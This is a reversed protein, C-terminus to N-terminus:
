CSRVKPNLAAMDASMHGDCVEGVSENAEPFPLARYQTPIDYQSLPFMRLFKYSTLRLTGRLSRM